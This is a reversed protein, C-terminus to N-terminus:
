IIKPLFILLGVCVATLSLMLVAFAAMDKAKGILPDYAVSVKDALSELASNFAEASIVSGICLALLCWETISVHWIFGAAIVCAAVTLHVWANHETKILSLFGKGAFRFSRIRKKLSFPERELDTVM